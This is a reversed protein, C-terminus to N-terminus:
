KVAEFMSWEVLGKSAFMDLHCLVETLAQRVSIRIEGALSHAIQEASRKGDILTWVHTGTTNMGRLIRGQPDLLVFDQGLRTAQTGRKVKAVLEPAAPVQTGMKFCDAQAVM